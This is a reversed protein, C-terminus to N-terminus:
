NLYQLITQCIGEYTQMKSTLLPKYGKSIIHNTTTNGISIIKTKKPSYNLSFADFCSPSTFVTFCINENLLNELKKIFCNNLNTKYINLRKVSCYGSMKDELASTALNGQILLVNSNHIAKIKSLEKVMEVSYNRKTVLFPQINNKILVESTKTGISIIKKKKLANIDKFSKLFFKVGNKSTFVIFEFKEIEFSENLLIETSIMPFHFIKYESQYLQKFDSSVLENTLIILPKKNM